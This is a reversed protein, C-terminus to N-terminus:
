EPAISEGSDCSKSQGLQAKMETLQKEARTLRRVYLEFIRQVIEAALAEAGTDIPFFDQYTCEVCGVRYEWELKLFDFHGKNFMIYYREKAERLAAIHAELAEVEKEITKFM